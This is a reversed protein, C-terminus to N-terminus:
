PSSVYEIFINEIICISKQIYNKIRCHAVYLAKKRATFFFGRRIRLRM